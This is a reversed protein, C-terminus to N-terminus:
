TATSRAAPRSSSTPADTGIKGPAANSGGVDLVYVRMDGKGPAAISLTGGTVTRVDGSVGDVHRGNPIGSFTAADTVTVPAFSDVGSAADTYRRKFSMGSGSVGEASYQGMRLAPVARRIQNLRQLTAGLHGAAPRHHV